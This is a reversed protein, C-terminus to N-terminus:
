GSPNYSRLKTICSSSTCESSAPDVGDTFTVNFYYTTNPELICAKSYGETSWFIEGGVGWIHKCEDAVDFDGPCQSISGLRRGNSVTTEITTLLGTDVYNATNFEIALYGNRPIDTFENAYLPDPFPVNNWFTAWQVTTGSLSPADCNNTKPTPVNATVTASKTVTGSDGVCELTFQYTGATSIVLSKSGTLAVSAAAWDAAGGIAKCTNTNQSAWTITTSQDITIITPSAFFTTIAAVSPPPETDGPTVVYGTTTTIFIDGTTPGVTIAQIETGPIRQNDIIVDAFISGSMTIAVLLWKIGKLFSM